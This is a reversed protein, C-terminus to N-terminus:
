RPRTRKRSADTILRLKEARSLRKIRAELRLADGRTAVPGSRWVLSVPQHSRTYRGGRGRRHQEVRHALDNTMGCYLSGDGCRLLYVRYPAAKRTM